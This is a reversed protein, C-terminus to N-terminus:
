CGGWDDFKNGKSINDSKQIIQLNWPVHLGTVKRGKLPIIHDVEHPVGTEQTLRSAEKYIEQMQRIHEETLLNSSCRKLFNRRAQYEARKAKNEPKSRHIAARIKNKTRVCPRSNYERQQALYKEKNNEKWAKQYKYGYKFAKKSAETNPM